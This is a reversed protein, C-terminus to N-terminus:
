KSNLAKEIQELRAELERIRRDKEEIESELQRFKTSVVAEDVKSSEISAIQRSQEMQNEELGVIFHYLDKIANVVAWHIPDVNLELYGDDRTKVAEPIVKQVDQAVFGIVENDSPLGLPNGEKYSFRVTDLKLIEGLGYDYTGHIDKLRIDSTNTWATGTSLGATGIVHLNHTPNTTGIGVNGASSIRMREQPNAGNLRTSFSLYADEDNSDSTQTNEWGWIIEGGLRRSGNAFGELEFDVTGKMGTTPVTASSLSRYLKLAEISTVSNNPQAVNLAGGIDIEQNDRDIAFYTNGGHVMSLAGYYNTLLSTGGLEIKAKGYENGSDNLILKPGEDDGFGMYTDGYITLAHTAEDYIFRDSGTFGSSGDNLQVSKTAGGPSGGGGSPTTWSAVGNADSTLVKGAGQNGDVIRLTSGSTGVVHLKAGANSTGIGVNGTSNIRMVEASSNRFAHEYNQLIYSGGTAAAGAPRIFIGNNFAKGGIVLGNSSFDIKHGLSSTITLPNMLDNGGLNLDGTMAVSGDKMFDGTGGSATAWSAVGNADSTLVKGVGQNGDVIKLTNGSTGVVHLKQGPTSTGIGVNGSSNVRIRETGSTSFALNDDLPSFMGTDFSGTSNFSYPPASAGSGTSNLRYSNTNGYILGTGFTANRTGNISIAVDAGSAYFGSSGGFNLSPAGASGSTLELPGTMAVSGDKMFDGTGGSAAAWSAVGNADSTLVKGTGQNGDVIRLTNGSTGVVHLKTGPTATGVGVFGSDFKGYILPTRSSMDNNALVFTNTLTSGALYGAKYGLFVNGNGDTNVGNVGSGAYAGLSVSYNDGNSYSGVGVGRNTGTSNAGISTGVTTATASVGVATGGSSGTASVGVSTESGSTTGTLGSSQTQWSLVGSGNTSLVQGSSGDAAPLTWIRNTGVVGPSKFGVYNSSDTDAFRLENTANMTLAGTMADGAKAVKETDLENIATQVTTASISGSASNSINAATLGSVQSSAIAISSCTYVDTVASYVLTQAATCSAPFQANGLSNKLDNVGFYTAVYETSGDYKLVQGSATPATGNVSTGRIKTVALTGANSLTGDGSMAVAAAQNSGNGVWFSGNTLSSGAVASLKSNFTDYDSKSLLGATVSSTSAMPINLTHANTASSWNPATGSTGPTAFTQTAGTQGGLSTIGGSSGGAAVWGSGDYYKLKNSDGSDVAIDGAVPSGPLASATVRMPGNVHLLRAPTITGVGVNGDALIEIRPTNNTILRLSGSAELGVNMRPTSVTTLSVIGKAGADGVLNFSTTTATDDVLVIEPAVASDYLTLKSTPNATGIGVNGGSLITMKPSNNTEFQLSQADNTGIVVTAGTTNGGDLIDGSGGGAAAWTGDGRLFTTGDATGSGLRATAITGSTIQSAAIGISSCTYVDTVASYVLTQAATCSSPFQANGLSNKLDSAGFYTAVYETSGDYKLVQGAATPGTADVSTGQIKTVTLAGTNALTADGSMAVVAAQNSGNGVWISSDTLSSGVPSTGTITTNGAATLRGKQDVTFTAVQTASGYSGPTVATDAISIVPTSTGTAVSIPATGSVSTVTGGSGSAVIEISNATHNITVGTGAVISKNELATGGANMGLVQNASGLSSPFTLNYDSTLTGTAPTQFRIFNTNDSDYLDIARTSMSGSTVSGTASINGSTAINGSTNVATSGAITGSTLASGSVKGATSLTPIDGEALTTGSTVRGKADYTVKTSTGATAVDPLSVAGSSVSLGGAAPFNAIGKVTATADAPTGGTSDTVCSFSTGDSKLVEGAGCTPLSAKAFASVNPDSESTLPTAATWGGSGDSVIAQGSGLTPLNSGGLQGAKTYLSSTGATLALIENYQATSLPTTTGLTGSDAVKLISSAPYGGVAYSEISMPIYNMTQTPLAEWGSFTGDNFFVRFKRNDTPGPAYTTSGTCDSGSFSFSKRNALSDFLPWSNSDQRVGTGDAISIAFTGKTASLDLTQLEEYMLCDESGPTRIQIKFQVSSATVPNGDPGILRGQYTIGSTALAELGLSISFALIFIRVTRWISKM